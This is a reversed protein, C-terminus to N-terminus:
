IVPPKRGESLNLAEALDFADRRLLSVFDRGDSAAPLDTHTDVVMWRGSPERRAEYRAEGRFLRSTEIRPSPCPHCPM